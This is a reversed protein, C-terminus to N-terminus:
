NEKNLENLIGLYPKNQQLLKFLGTGDLSVMLNNQLILQNFVRFSGPEPEQDFVKITPCYTFYTEVKLKNLGYFNACTLRHILPIEICNTLHEECRDVLSEFQYLHALKLLAFV